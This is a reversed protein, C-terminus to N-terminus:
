KIVDKSNCIQCEEGDLYVIERGDKKLIVLHFYFNKEKSYIWNEFGMIKEKQLPSVFDTTWKAYPYWKVDSMFGRDPRWIAILLIISVVTCFIKVPFLM